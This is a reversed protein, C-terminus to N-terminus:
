RRLAAVDHSNDLRAALRVEADRGLAVLAQGSESASVLHRAAQKLGVFAASAAAAEPSCHDIGLGILADIVAGSALLDEVAFRVTGDARLGGAAIVAVGFRDGKESQRAVIWEAVATRNGFGATIVQTDSAAPVVPAAADAEPLVDVVVVVDVFPELAQFGAQGWDFRVQYKQQAPAHTM